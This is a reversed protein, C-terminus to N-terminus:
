AQPSTIGSLNVGDFPGPCSQRVFCRRCSDPDAAVRNAPAPALAHLAAMRGAAPRVVLHFWAWVEARHLRCKAVWCKPCDAKSVYIWECDVWDLAPDLVLECWSYLLAQEDTRLTEDTLAWAPSDKDKGVGPGRDSTTKTDKIYGPRRLDPKGNVLLVLGTAPDTYPISYVHQVEAGGHAPLHRRAEALQRNALKPAGSDGTVGDRVHLQILRDFDNGRTLYKGGAGADDPARLVHKLYYSRPCLRFLKLHSASIRLATM